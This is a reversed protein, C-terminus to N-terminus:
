SRNPPRLCTPPRPLIPSSAWTVSMLDIQLLNGIFPRLKLSVSCVEGGGWGRRCYLLDVPLEEFRRPLSIELCHAFKPSTFQLKETQMSGPFLNFSTRDRIAGEEEEEEESPVSNGSHLRPRRSALGRNSNTEKPFKASGTTRQSIITHLMIYAHSSLSHETLTVEPPILNHFNHSSALSNSPFSQQHLTSFISPSTQLDSPTNVNAHRYLSHWFYSM